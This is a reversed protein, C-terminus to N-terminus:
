AGPDNWAVEQRRAMGPRADWCRWTTGYEDARALEPDARFRRILLEGFGSPMDLSVIPMRAVGRVELWCCEAELADAFPLVREHGDLAEAIEGLLTVVDSLGHQGRTALQRVEGIQVMLKERSM